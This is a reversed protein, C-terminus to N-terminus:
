FDRYLTFSGKKFSAPAIKPLESLNRNETLITFVSSIYNQQRCDPIATSQLCRTHTKIKATSSNSAITM